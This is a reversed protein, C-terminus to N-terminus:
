RKGGEPKENGWLKGKGMTERWAHRWRHIDTVWIESLNQRKSKDAIAPYPKHPEEQYWYAVTAIDLTLNNGHGHEISAHLSKQFYIPDQIFFRYSHTRGMWGLKNTVRAYGFYPHQYIEAPCWACNFFDETGTGHLSGPWVEGDILWMDDGEGYWMPGPNDVFYNIGVFSGRGEIEAFVYNGTVGPNKYDEEFIAWENEMDKEPATIKRNWWAHFRAADPAISKHEEYDVNYFFGDIAFDSQNEITILAGSGFPMPFYSNLAKGQAPAAAITLSAFNYNEGWGQGFFDGIPSEVSPNLEGDWYMRLIINRGFMPDSCNITMWVHKIIGAGKIEAITKTQGPLFKIFDQNGGTKDYSSIRKSKFDKFRYIEGLM